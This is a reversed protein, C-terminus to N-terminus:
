RSRPSAPSYHRRDRAGVSGAAVGARRVARAAPGVLLGALPHDRPVDVDRYCGVIMLAAEPASRVVHRLLLATPRDAWHLDDLVLLTSQAMTIGTLLATIAEFLRYREAEPDSPRPSPSAPFRGLLEPFVRTLDEELGHLREHLTSPPYASVFPRLAEVFPQYPVITEDDCRGYLVMGGQEDVRRSLEGALRTKGIGSEGLVLVVRRSGDMTRKWAGELIELEASRGAFGQGDRVLAPKPLNTITPFADLSRLPPFGSPLDPHVVQFVHVPQALDRLRHSGLDLFDVGAPLGSRALTVTSESALM